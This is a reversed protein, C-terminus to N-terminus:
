RPRGLSTVLAELADTVASWSYREAAARVGPEYRARGGRAFFELIAQALAEPDEPPVLHGTVGEEVVEPLGGVRTSIVPCGAAYAALVVGSQTAARYPLVACDAAAFLAGVEEDPIYRDLLRVAGELGLRAIRDRTAAVPEYFEGAVVLTVDRRARVRPLAELLVDLGKYRRVFGFFLLVDGTLGLAERAAARGRPDAFHAYVPHPVRRHAAGPVLRELDAEVAESMVLYADTRATVMRTFARDFPRAEHPILNDAIMVTAAGGRRAGALV